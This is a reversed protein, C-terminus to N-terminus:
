LVREPQRAARRRLPQRRTPARRAAHRIVLRQSRFVRIPEARQASLQVFLTLETRHAISHPVPARAVGHHPAISALHPNM